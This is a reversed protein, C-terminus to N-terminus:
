EDPITFDSDFYKNSVQNLYDNNAFYITTIPSRCLSCCPKPFNFNTIIHEFYKVMCPKCVSHSCNCILKEKFPQTDMCIPCDFSSHDTTTISKSLIKFKHSVQISSMTILQRYRESTYWFFWMLVKIRNYKFRFNAEEDSIKGRELLMSIVPNLRMGLYNMLITLNHVTSNFLYSELTMEVFRDSQIINTIISYMDIALATAKSCTNKNHGSRHCHGCKM